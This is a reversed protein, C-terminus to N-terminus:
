RGGGRVRRKVDLPVRTGYDTVGSLRNFYDFTLESVAEIVQGGNGGYNSMVVVVYPRDPVGM